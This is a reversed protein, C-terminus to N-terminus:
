RAIKPTRDNVYGAEVIFDPQAQLQREDGFIARAAALNPAPRGAPQATNAMWDAKFGGWGRECCMQIAQAVSIRAKAAERAIGQLATMTIPMKKTKRLIKFDAWLADSVGDPPPVDTGKQKEKPKHNTTQLKHNTTPTIEPNPASVTQTETPNERRPRGGLKGYERNRDVKLHYDMIEKDCRNHRWGDETLTFFEALIAAAQTGYSVMRLRRLVPATDQPIPTETDYYFNILRFYVAEEELSLHATHLAWASIDFKYYHM